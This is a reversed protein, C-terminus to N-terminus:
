LHMIQGGPPQTALLTARLEGVGSSQKVPTPELDDSRCKTFNFTLAVMHVHGVVMFPRLHSM